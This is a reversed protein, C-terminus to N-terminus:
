IKDLLYNEQPTFNKFNRSFREIIINIISEEPVEKDELDTACKVLM